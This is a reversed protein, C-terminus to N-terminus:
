ELSICLLCHDSVNLFLFVFEVHELYLHVILTLTVWFKSLGCHPSTAKEM